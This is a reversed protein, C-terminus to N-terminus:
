KKFSVDENTLTLVIYKVRFYDDKVERTILDDFNHHILSSIIPNKEKGFLDPHTRAYISFVPGIMQIFSMFKVKQYSFDTPPNENLVDFM